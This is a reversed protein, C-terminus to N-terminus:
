VVCVHEQCVGRWGRRRGGVEEAQREAQGVSAKRGRGGYTCCIRCISWFVDGISGQRTSSTESGEKYVGMYAAQQEVVGAM